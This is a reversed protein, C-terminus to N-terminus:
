LFGVNSHSWPKKVQHNLVIERDARLEYPALILLGGFLKVAKLVEERSSQRNIIKM